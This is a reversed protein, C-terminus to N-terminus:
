QKEYDGVYSSEIAEATSFELNWAGFELYIEIIFNEFVWVFLKANCNYGDETLNSVGKAQPLASV